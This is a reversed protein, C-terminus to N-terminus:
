LQVRYRDNVNKREELLAPYHTIIYELGEFLKNTNDFNLPIIKYNENGDIDITKIAMELEEKEYNTYLAIQGNKYKATASLDIKKFMDEEYEDDCPSMYFKTLSTFLTTLDNIKCYVEIEIDDFHKISLMFGIGFPTTYPIINFSVMADIKISGKLEEIKETLKNIM